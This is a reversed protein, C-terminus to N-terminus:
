LRHIYRKNKLHADIEAKAEDWSAKSSLLATASSRALMCSLGSESSHNGVFAYKFIPKKEGLDSLLANSVLYNM